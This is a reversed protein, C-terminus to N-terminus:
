KESVVWVRQHRLTKASSGANSEWRLEQQLAFFHLSPLGLSSRDNDRQVVLASYASARVCLRGEIEHITEASPPIIHVQMRGKFHKPEPGQHLYLWRTRLASSRLPRRLRGHKLACLRVLAILVPNWNDAAGGSAVTGAGAANTPAEMLGQERLAIEQNELIAATVAKRHHDSITGASEENLVPAWKEILKDYSQANQM